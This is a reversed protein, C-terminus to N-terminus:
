RRRAPPSRPPSASSASPTAPASSPATTRATPARADPSCGHLARTAARSARDFEDAIWDRAVAVPEPSLFLLGEVGQPGLLAFRHRASATDRYSLLRNQDVGLLVTAFAAPDALPALGALELRFGARTCAVAWYECPIGVPRHRTMAFGYWAADAAEIEVTTHKLGPQGSIPDTAPGVLQDIIANSAFVDTWHMPVFVAGPRQGDTVLARALVSGTARACAFSDTAPRIGPSRADTPHIEVFPEAIHRRCARRNRRHADDHAVPRARPRHQPRAPLEPMPMARPARAAVAVFRARRTRRPSAGTPSSLAATGSPTRRRSAAMSRARARRLRRRRPRRPAGIDFRRRGDNEFASLAAHERFIEAPPTTPSPRPSAWAGPSRASSGGTPGRRAPCRCSPASARSAASRIPSRATRRAGPPPPCCCMRRLPDHRHRGHRRLRRRLPLSRAGRAVRTPMPCASRGSQDGHDVAGQHARRAVAQFM